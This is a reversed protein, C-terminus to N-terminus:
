STTITIMDSEVPIMLSSLQEISANFWRDVDQPLILLPMRHHIKVCSENPRTTLTVLQVEDEHEFWLGAMLFPICEAHTFAYKQKKGEGESRWEYWGTCPVLCRKRAFSTKFTKKTAASESQANIILKKSWAPQIGWTTNLQKLDGNSVVTAVKQSPRLDTNEDIEFAIGMYDCVWQTVPDDTVSLRGCM